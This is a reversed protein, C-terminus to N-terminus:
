GFELYWVGFVSSGGTPYVLLRLFSSAVVARAEGEGWGIPLPNPPPSFGSWCEDPDIQLSDRFGRVRAREGDSPSLSNGSCHMRDWRTSRLTELKTNTM